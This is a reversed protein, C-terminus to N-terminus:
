TRRPLLIINWEVPLIDNCPVQPVLLSIHSAFCLLFIVNTDDHTPHKFTFTSFKRDEFNNYPDLQILVVKINRLMAFHILPLTYEPSNTDFEYTEDTIIDYDNSIIGKCSILLEEKLENIKDITIDNDGLADLLARLLCNGDGRQDKVYVNNNFFLKNINNTCFQLREQNYRFKNAFFENITITSDNIITDTITVETM